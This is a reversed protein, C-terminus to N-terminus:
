SVTKTQMSHKAYWYELEPATKPKAVIDGQLQDAGLSILMQKLAMSEIGEVTVEFGLSKAMQISARMIHKANSNSLLEENFAKDIKVEDVPLNKLYALSSHGTGFDDIALRIDLQRLRELIKIAQELDAMLSSETIEIALVEGPLQYEQLQREIEQLMCGNNLDQASLNLAIRVKFGGSRWKHQQMMVQELAWQSVLGIMGSYEALPIFEAPSITGFKPHEWRILAEVQRCLGSSVEEKAQYVLYLQGTKLAKPLSNIIELERMQISDEGTQYGALLDRSNRAKKLALDLRRLMLSLDTHHAHLDLYGMQIRISVPTGEIDFPVQLRGRLRHLDEETQQQEFYLLFEDENMRALLRPVQQLGLLRDAMQKLLQDGFAFGFLDNVYRFRYIDLLVMTGQQLPMLATVSRKLGVRNALGTLKDKGVPPPLAQLLKELSNVLEYFAVPVWPLELPARAKIQNDLQKGLLKIFRREKQRQRRWLLLIFVTILAISLLWPGIM